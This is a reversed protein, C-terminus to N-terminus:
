LRGQRLWRLYSSEGVVAPGGGLEDLFAECAASERLGYSDGSAELLSRAETLHARAQDLQGM